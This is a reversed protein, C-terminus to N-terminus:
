GKDTRLAYGGKGVGKEGEAGGEEGDGGDENCSFSGAFIIIVVITLVHSVGPMAVRTVHILPM